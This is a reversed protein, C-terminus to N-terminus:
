KQLRLKLFVGEGVKKGKKMSLGLRIMIGTPPPGTLVLGCSSTRGFIGLEVANLYYHDLSETETYFVCNADMNLGHQILRDKTPLRGKIALWLSFVAQPRNDLSAFVYGLGLADLRGSFGLDRQRREEGIGDVGSEAARLRWEWGGSSRQLIGAM